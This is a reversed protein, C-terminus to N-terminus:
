RRLILVIIWWACAVTVAIGTLLVFVNMEFGILYVIVVAATIVVAGILLWVPVRRILAAGITLLVLGSVLFSM